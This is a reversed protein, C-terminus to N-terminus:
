RFPPPTDDKVFDFGELMEAILGCDNALVAETIEKRSVGTIKGETDRTM